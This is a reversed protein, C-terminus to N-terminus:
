ILSAKSTAVYSIMSRILAVVKTNGIFNRSIMQLLSQLTVLCHDSLLDENLQPYSDKVYPVSKLEKKITKAIHSLYDQNDDDQKLSDKFM